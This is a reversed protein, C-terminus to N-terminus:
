RTPSSCRWRPAMRTPWPFSSREAKSHGPAMDALSHWNARKWQRLGVTDKPRLVAFPLVLRSPLKGAAACRLIDHGEPTTLGKDAVVPMASQASLRLGCICHKPLCKIMGGCTGGPQPVMVLPALHRLLPYQHTM